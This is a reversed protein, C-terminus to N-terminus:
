GKLEGNKENGDEQIERNEGGMGKPTESEKEINSETTEASSSSSPAEMHEKVLDFEDSIWEKYNKEKVSFVGTNFNLSLFVKKTEKFVAHIKLISM